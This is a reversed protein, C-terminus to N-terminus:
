QSKRQLQRPCCLTGPPAEVVKVVLFEARRRLVILDDQKIQSYIADLFMRTNEGNDHIVPITSGTTESAPIAELANSTLSSGSPFSSFTFVPPAESDPATFPSLSAVLSPSLVQVEDLKLDADFEPQRASMSKSIPRGM